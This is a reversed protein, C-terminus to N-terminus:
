REKARRPIWQGDTTTAPKQHAGAASIVYGVMSLTDGGQAAFL